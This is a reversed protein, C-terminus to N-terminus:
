VRPLAKVACDDVGCADCNSGCGGVGNLAAEALVAADLQQEREFTEDLQASRQLGFAVGLVLLAVVIVVVGVLKWIVGGALVPAAGTVLLVLGFPALMLALQRRRAPAIRNLEDSVGDLIRCAAPRPPVPLRLATRM